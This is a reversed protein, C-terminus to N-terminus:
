LFLSLCNYLYFPECMQEFYNCVLCFNFMVSAFNFCISLIAGFLTLFINLYKFLFVVNAYDFTTQGLFLRVFAVVFIKLSFM